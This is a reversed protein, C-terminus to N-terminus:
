LNEDHQSAVIQVPGGNQGTIATESKERWDHPFRAAMSRSWMSQQFTGGMPPILLNERGIREWWVQSKQRAITLAESFEPYEAPWQTEFTTRVVGIDAAMEVVSWGLAGMEIVRECFEQRYKSPRGEPNAM